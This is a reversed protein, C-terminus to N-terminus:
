YVLKAQLAGNLGEYLMVMALTDLECYKLLADRIRERQNLPIESYQLMNYAMMASGGDAIADVEQALRDLEDATYGEFVPDLTKYPDYGLEKRTWIKSNFNLSNIQLGKGYIPQSYKEILFPFSNIIAPLIQKLSNSGKAHLSYFYKVVIEHMDFMNRDGKMRVKKNELVENWETISRIFEQLEKRDAINSHELENHVFNLYTNEHDHYRFISGTDKELCSKLSRIFEFTPFKGPEFSLFQDKHEIRGDKYIIHHSFQFPVGQYPRMGKFWPIAMATTEFDIFHLPYVFKEFTNAIGKKDIYPTFDKSKSKFIQIERRQHGSLGDDSNKGSNDFDSRIADKILFRKQELLSRVPPKSGAKGGWLHIILDDEKFAQRSVWSNGVWCEEM